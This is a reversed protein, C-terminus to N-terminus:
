FDMGTDCAIPKLQFSSRPSSVSSGRRNLKAGFPLEGETSFRRPAARSRKPLQYQISSLLRFIRANDDPDRMVVSKQRSGSRHAHGGAADEPLNWGRFSG